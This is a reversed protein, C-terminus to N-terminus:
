ILVESKLTSNKNECNLKYLSLKVTNNVIVWSKLDIGLGSHVWDEFGIVYIKLGLDFILLWCKHESVM